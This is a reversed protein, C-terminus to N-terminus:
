GGDETDEGHELYARWPKWYYKQWGQSVGAHDHEPVNVHVLDIQTGYKIKSCKLVLISDLDTKKWHRARWSQVIMRNPVVALMKGSLAGGFASFRGGVKPSVLAKAHTAASHQRSDMYLKFLRAPSANFRVRQQIARTM